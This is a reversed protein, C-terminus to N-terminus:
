MLRYMVYELKKSLTINSIFILLNFKYIVVEKIFKQVWKSAIRDCSVFHNTQPNADSSYQKDVFLEQCQM